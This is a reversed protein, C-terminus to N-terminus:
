NNHYIKKIEANLLLVSSDKVEKEVMELVKVLSWNQSTFKLRFYVRMIETYASFYVINRYHVAHFKKAHFLLQSLYYYTWHRLETFLGFLLQEERPKNLQDLFDVGTLKVWNKKAQYFRLAHFASRDYKAEFEQPTFIRYNITVVPYVRNLLRLEHSINKINHQHKVIMRLDLESVAPLFDEREPMRTIYLSLIHKNKQYYFRLFKLLLISLA